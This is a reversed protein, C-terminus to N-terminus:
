ACVNERGSLMRCPPVNFIWPGAAANAARPRDPESAIRRTDQLLDLLHTSIALGPVHTFRPDTNKDRLIALKHKVLPHNSIHVNSM